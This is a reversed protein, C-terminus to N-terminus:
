LTQHTVHHSKYMLLSVRSTAHLISCPAPSTTVPPSPESWAPSPPSTLRPGGIQIQPVQPPQSLIKSIPERHTTLFYSFLLTQLSNLPLAPLAPRANPVALAFVLSALSPPSGEGEPIKSQIGPEAKVLRLGQLARFSTEVGSDGPRWRWRRGGNEWSMAMPIWGSAGCAVGAHTRDGM